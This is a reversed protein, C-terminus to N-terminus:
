RALALARDVVRNLDATVVPKLLYAANLEQATEQDGAMQRATLMIAPMRVTIPMRRLITLLDLGDIGEMVIDLLALDPVGHMGILALAEGATAVSQVDHGMRQLRLELLLRNDPDDEVVLVRAM